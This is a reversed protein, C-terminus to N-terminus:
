QLYDIFARKKADNYLGYNPSSKKPMNGSQIRSLSPSAKFSEGSRLYSAGAHCGALACQEKVLAKIEDNWPDSPGPPPPDQDTPRPPAPLPQPRYPREAPELGCSVVLSILILVTKM